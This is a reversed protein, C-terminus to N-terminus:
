VNSLSPRPFESVPISPATCVPLRAEGDKSSATTKIADPEVPNNDEPFSALNFTNKKNKKKKAM